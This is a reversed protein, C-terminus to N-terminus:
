ARNQVISSLVEKAVARDDFTITRDKFIQYNEHGKGAILVADGPRALSFAYRIAETRDPEVHYERSRSIGQEIERIIASPEESRPNDSTVVIVDAGEEAAQGMKPRKGRDRDGGCGFVVILRGRVIKRMSGLVNRLADDTHAYDVFVSFDQGCEVAELRGPVLAVKEIGNRIAEAEYGMADCLAAAGLINMVNHLGVLKTRIPLENGRFLLHFRSGDFGMREVRVSFDAHGAAAFTVVRAKTRSSFWASSPDDGNLVAVANSSLMEFLIGKAQRYEEPTRHYDLHDRTLNTFLGAAFNMGFLRQQDLAHSSVEMVASRCDAQKMEWLYRQLDESAPTTMPAPIERAGVSYAITGILGVREGAAELISRVLFATTSKGNTGTIGIVNLARSPERHFRSALTSIARRVDPVLILPIDGTPAERQAVVAACGRAIAEEIYRHGDDRNGCIAVFVFGKRVRRSDCTVGLIETEGVPSRLDFGALFENM